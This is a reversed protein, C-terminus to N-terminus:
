LVFTVILCSCPWVQLTKNTSVGCCSELLYALSKQPKSLLDCAQMTVVPLLILFFATALGHSFGGCDVQTWFKYVGAMHCSSILCMENLM